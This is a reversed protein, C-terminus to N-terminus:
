LQPAALSLVIVSDKAPGIPRNRPCGAEILAAIRCAFQSDVGRWIPIPVARLEYNRRCVRFLRPLHEDDRHLAVALGSIVANLMRHVRAKAFTSWGAMM